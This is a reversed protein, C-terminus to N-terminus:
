GVNQPFPFLSIPSVGNGTGWVPDGPLSAEGGAGGHGLLDRSKANPYASHNDLTLLM